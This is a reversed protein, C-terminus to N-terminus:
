MILSTNPNSNSNLVCFILGIYFCWFIIKNWPFYFASSFELYHNVSSYIDRQKTVLNDSEKHSTSRLGGPEETRPIEWAPIHTPPWKRIWPSNLEKGAQTTVGAWKQPIRTLAKERVGLSQLIWINFTVIFMYRSWAVIILQVWSVAHKKGAAGQRPTGEGGLGTCALAIYDSSFARWGCRLLRGLSSELQGLQQYTFRRTTGERLLYHGM